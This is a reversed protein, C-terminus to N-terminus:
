KGSKTKAPAYPVNVRRIKRMDYDGIKLEKCYNLLPPM